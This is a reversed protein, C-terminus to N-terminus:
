SYAEACDRSKVRPAWAGRGAPGGEAGGIGSPQPITRSRAFLEENRSQLCVSRDVMLIKISPHASDSSRRRGTPARVQDGSDVDRGAAISGDEEGMGGRAMVMDECTDPISM